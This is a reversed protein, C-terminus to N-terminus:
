TCTHDLCTSWHCGDQSNCAARDPYSACPPHAGTCRPEWACGCSACAPSDTFTECAPPTDGHCAASFFACGCAECSERVPHSECPDPDGWCGTVLSCGNQAECVSEELDFCATAAGLCGDDCDDDGCCAGGVIHRGGCCIGGDCETMDPLSTRHCTRSACGDDTCPNDDDCDSDDCCEVCDGSCCVGGSCSTGDVADSFVCRSSVCSDLTCENGDDCDSAGECEEPIDPDSGTGDDDSPEGPDLGDVDADHGDPVAVDDAAADFGRLDEPDFRFCAACLLVLVFSAPALGPFSSRFTNREGGGM